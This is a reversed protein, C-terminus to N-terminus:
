IAAYHVLFGDSTTAGHVKAVKEDESRSSQGIIKVKSSPRSLTLTVPMGFTQTLPRKTWFNNDAGGGGGCVCQVLQEVQVVLTTPLSHTLM